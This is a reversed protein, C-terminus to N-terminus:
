LAHESSQRTLPPAHVMSELSSRHLTYSQIVLTETPSNWVLSGCWADTFLVNHLYNKPVCREDWTGIRASHTKTYLSYLFFEADIRTQEQPPERREIDRPKTRRTEFGFSRSYCIQLRSALCQTKINLYKYKTGVLCSYDLLLLTSPRTETLLLLLSRRRAHHMTLRDPKMYNESDFINMIVAIFTVLTLTSSLGLM